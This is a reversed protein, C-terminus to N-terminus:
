LRKISVPAIDQVMVKSQPLSITEETLVLVLVKHLVTYSILRVKVMWVM